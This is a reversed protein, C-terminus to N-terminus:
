YSEKLRTFRTGAISGHSGNVQMTHNVPQSAPNLGQVSTGIPVSSNLVRVRNETLDTMPQARTSTRTNIKQNNHFITGAAQNNDTGAQHRAQNQDRKESLYPSFDSARWCITVGAEGSVVSVGEGGDFKRWNKMASSVKRDRWKWANKWNIGHNRRLDNSIQPSPRRKKGTAMERRNRRGGDRQDGWEKNIERRTPARGSRRRTPKM